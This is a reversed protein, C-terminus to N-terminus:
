VHGVAESITGCVHQQFFLQSEYESMDLTLENFDLCTRIAQTLVHGVRRPLENQCIKRVKAAVETSTLRRPQRVQTGPERSTPSLVSGM